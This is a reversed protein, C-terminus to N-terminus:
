SNLIEDLQREAAQEEEEPIRRYRQPDRRHMVEAALLALALLLLPAIALLEWIWQGLHAIPMVFLTPARTGRRWPWVAAGM